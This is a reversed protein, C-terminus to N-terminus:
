LQRLHLLTNAVAETIASRDSDTLMGTKKLNELAANSKLSHNKLLEEFDLTALEESSKFSLIHRSYKTPEISDSISTGKETTEKFRKRKEQTSDPNSVSLTKELNLDTHEISHSLILEKSIEVIPISEIDICDASKTFMEILDRLDEEQLWSIIEKDM